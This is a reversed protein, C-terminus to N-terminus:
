CQKKGREISYKFPKSGWVDIYQQVMICSASHEDFGVMDCATTKKNLKKALAKYETEIADYWEDPKPNLGNPRHYYIYKAELITWALLVFRIKDSTTKNTM